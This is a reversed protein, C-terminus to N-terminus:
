LDGNKATACQMVESGKKKKEIAIDHSSSTANTADNYTNDAGFISRRM